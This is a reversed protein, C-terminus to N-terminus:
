HKFYSIGVTLHSLSSSSYDAITNTLRDTPTPVTMFSTTNTHYCCIAATKRFITDYFICVHASQDHDLDAFFFCCCKMFTGGSSSKSGCNSVSVLIYFIFFQGFFTFIQLQYINAIPQCRITSVAPKNENENM